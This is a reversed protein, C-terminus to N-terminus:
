LWKKISRNLIMQYAGTGSLSGEYIGVLVKSIEICDGDTEIYAMDLEVAKLVGLEIGVSKYPVVRIKVNNVEVGELLEKIKGYEAIHVPIREIPETLSNGSDYLGKLKVEKGRFCLTVEYIDNKRLHINMKAKLCKSLFVTIFYAVATIFIFVVINVGKLYKLSLLNRLYFGTDTFYYLGNVAGSVLFTVAYIIGLSKICAKVEKIKYCIVAMVSPIILYTFTKQIIVTEIKNVTIICTLTTGALAALVCRLKTTQPRIFKGAIVLILMDMFFNIAFFVDIYIVYRMCEGKRGSMILIHGFLFNWTLKIYLKHLFNNKRSRNKSSLNWNLKRQVYAFVSAIM